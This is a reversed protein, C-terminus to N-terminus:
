EVTVNDLTLSGAVHGDLYLFNRSAPGGKSGHFEEYDYFSAIRTTGLINAFRGGIARKGGLSTNYEYSSGEKEFYGKTDAPCRFVKPSGADQLLIDCIRQLSNLKLSPLKAAYPYYGDRYNRYTELAIYVQRLNNKCETGRAVRQVRMVAPLILGALVGIIVIVVLLEILTFARRRPTKPSLTM